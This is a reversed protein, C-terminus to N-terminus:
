LHRESRRHVRGLIEDVGEAEIIFNSSQGSGSSAVYRGPGLDDGVTWTGAYLTVKTHTTVFPTTVPTFTM